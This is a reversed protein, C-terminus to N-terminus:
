ELALDELLHANDPQWKPAADILEVLSPERREGGATHLWRADLLAQTMEFALHYPGLFPERAHHHDAVNDGSGRIRIAHIFLAIDDPIADLRHRETARGIDIHESGRLLGHPDAHRVFPRFHRGCVAAHAAIELIHSRHGAASIQCSTGGACCRWRSTTPVRRLGSM